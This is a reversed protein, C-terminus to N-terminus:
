ALLLVAALMAGIVSGMKFEAMLVTKSSGYCLGQLAGGLGILFVYPTLLVGFAAFMPYIFLGRLIFYIVGWRRCQDPTLKTLANVATIRNVIESLWGTKRTDNYPPICVFGSAWGPIAWIAMGFLCTFSSLQLTEKPLGICYAVTAFAVSIGFVRCVIRPNPIVTSQGALHNLISCLPILILPFFTM